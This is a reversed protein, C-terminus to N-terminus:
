GPFTVANSLSFHSLHLPQQSFQLKRHHQLIHRLLQLVPCLFASSVVEVSICLNHETITSNLTYNVFFYFLNNSITYHQDM